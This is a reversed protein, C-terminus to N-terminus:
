GAQAVSVLVISATRCDGVGDNDPDLLHFGSVSNLGLPSGRDCVSLPLGLSSGLAKTGHVRGQECACATARRAASDFEGRRATANMAHHRWANVFEEPAKARVEDCVYAVEVIVSRGLDYSTVRIHVQRILLTTGQLSKKPLCDLDCRRRVLVTPLRYAAKRDRLGGSLLADRLVKKSQRASSHLGRM